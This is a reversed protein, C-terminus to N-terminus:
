SGSSSGVAPSGTEGVSDLLLPDWASLSGLSSWAFDALLPDTSGPSSLSVPIQKAAEERELKELEEISAMEREHLEKYRTDILALEKKLRRQRSRAELELDEAAELKELLKKRALSNKRFEADSVVLNCSSQINRGICESCRGSVVDLVCLRGHKVCSSCPTPMKPGSDYIEQARRRRRVTSSELVKPM